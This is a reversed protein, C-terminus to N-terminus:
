KKKYPSKKEMDKVYIKESKTSKEPRTFSSKKDNAKSPVTKLDKAYLKNKTAEKLPTKDSNKGYVSSTIKPAPSSDQQPKDDTRFKIQIGQLFNRLVQDKCVRYHKHSTKRFFASLEHKSMRFNALMLVDLVDEAQLNFAIKLKMFIKNNNLSVEPEPMPGEKKGRNKTILGNLFSSMQVDRIAKYGEDDDRKLWSSVDARTVKLGAFGFIGIMSSDNYNFIYRIRRLVDNNTM